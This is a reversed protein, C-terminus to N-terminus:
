YWNEGKENSELAPDPAPVPLSRLNTAQGARQRGARRGAAQESPDGEERLCAPAKRGEKGGGYLRQASCKLGPSTPTHLFAQHRRRRRHCRPLRVPGGSHALLHLPWPVSQQRERGSSRARRRGREKRRGEQMSTDEEEEEKEEEESCLLRRRSLRRRLEDTPVPPGRWHPLALPRSGRPISPRVSPKRPHHVASPPLREQQWEHPESHIM